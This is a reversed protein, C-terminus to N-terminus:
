GWLGAGNDSNPPSPDAVTPPTTNRRAVLMQTRYPREMAGGFETDIVEGISRALEAFRDPGLAVHDSYTALLRV